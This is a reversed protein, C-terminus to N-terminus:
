EVQENVKAGILLLEVKRDHICRALLSPRRQRLSLGLRQRRAPGRSPLPQPRQELRTERVAVRWLAASAPRQLKEDAVKVVVFVDPADDDAADPLPLEPGPLRNRDRM